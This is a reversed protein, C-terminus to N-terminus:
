ASVVVPGCADWLSLYGPIAHSGLIAFEIYIQVRSKM